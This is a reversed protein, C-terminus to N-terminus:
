CSQASGKPEVAQPFRQRVRRWEYMFQSVLISSHPFQTQAYKLADENTAGPRAQAFYKSVTKPEVSMELSMETPSGGHM